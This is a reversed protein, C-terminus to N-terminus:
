GTFATQPGAARWAKTESMLHRKCTMIFMSAPLQLTLRRGQHYILHLMHLEQVRATQAATEMPRTRARERHQFLVTKICILSVRAVHIIM